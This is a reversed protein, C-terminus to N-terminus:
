RYRSPVGPECSTYGLSGGRTFTMNENQWLRCAGESPFCGQNSIPVERARDDLGMFGSYRGFWVQDAGHRAVLARCDGAPPKDNRSVFASAGDVSAGFLPAAALLAALAAQFLANKKM